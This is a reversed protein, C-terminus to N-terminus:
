SPTPPRSRVQHRRDVRLTVGGRAASSLQAVAAILLFIVAGLLLSRVAAGGATAM